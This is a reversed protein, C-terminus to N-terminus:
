FRLSIAGVAGGRTPAAGVTISPERADARFMWYSTGGLAAGAAVAIMGGVLTDYEQRCQTQGPDEKACSGRGDMAMLAVGGVVAAGAAGATIWKWTRYPRRRSGGDDISASTPALPLEFSRASGEDDTVTVSREARGHGDLTATIVHPGPAVMGEYPSLGVPEGDVRLAAGPPTTAIRIPVPEGGPLAALDGAAASVVDDLERITCVPCSREVRHVVAGEVSASLLELELTYASGTADVVARVFFDAGLKEGIRGLCTTSSCGILEPTPALAKLVADLAVVRLGAAALGGALSREMQARLEPPGDGTIELAVIAVTGERVRDAWAPAAACIAAALLLVTAARRM